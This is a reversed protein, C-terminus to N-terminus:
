RLPSKRHLLGIRSDSDPIQPASVERWRFIKGVEAAPDAALYIQKILAGQEVRTRLHAQWAGYVNDIYGSQGYRRLKGLPIKKRKAKMANWGRLILPASLSRRASPISESIWHMSSWVFRSVGWSLTQLMKSNGAWIRSERHVLQKVLREVSQKLNVITITEAMNLIQLAPDKDFDRLALKYHLVVGPIQARASIEKLYPLWCEHENKELQPGKQAPPLWASIESPLEGAALKALFTSKGAGSPGAVVILDRIEAPM